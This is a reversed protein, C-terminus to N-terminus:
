MLSSFSFLSTFLYSCISILIILSFVYHSTIPLLQSSSTNVPHCLFNDRLFHCEFSCWFSLRSRAICLALLLNNSAFPIADAFAMLQSLAQHTKPVQTKM